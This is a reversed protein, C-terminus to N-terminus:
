AKKNDVILALGGLTRFEESQTEDPTMEIDFEEEVEMIFQMLGFSDVIGADLFRFSSYDVVDYVSLDARENLMEVLKKLTEKM